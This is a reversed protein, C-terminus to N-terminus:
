HLKEKFEKHLKIVQGTMSKKKVKKNPIAIDSINIFPM